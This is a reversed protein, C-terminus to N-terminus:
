LCGRIEKMAAPLSGRGADVARGGTATAVRTLEALDAEGIRITFLPVAPQHDRHRSLFDDATLGTNSIGDTILVVSVGDGATITAALDYAHGVTSWLATNGDYPETGVLDRLAVLDTPDDVTFRREDLIQGGFRIVTLQEGQHFRVFTPEGAGTLETFAQRLAAMRPGRMSGSFDLLYIVHSPPQTAAADYDALLRDIVEPQDPFYLANGTAVPLRASRPVEPDIPQRATREMIEQQVPPSRLWGVVRDYAARKTPDLLLLPYDSQVIGDAPYIIELPEPLRGSGNLSLLVSEHTVLADLEARHAVFNDVLKATALKHGTLFGRVRNCIVDAPRLAQGTGAAATAVGVLAALGESAHHPDGMAFRLEGSAARDALDAWSVPRGGSHLRQATARTVGVVVPSLMTTTSLPRPGPYGSRRLDLQLYHDSSLWALDYRDVGQTVASSADVTGQFDMDLEIGTQARLEALLPAMDALESSALVQLTVPQRSTTTCATLVALIVCLVVLGRTM